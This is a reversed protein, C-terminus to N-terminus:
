HWVLLYAVRCHMVIGPLNHGAEATLRRIGPAVAVAAAALFLFLFVAVHNIITFFCYQNVFCLCLKKEAM